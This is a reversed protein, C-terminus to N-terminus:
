KHPEVVLSTEFPSHKGYPEGFGNWKRFRSANNCRSYYLWTRKQWTTRERCRIEDRQRRVFPGRLYFRRTRIRDRQGIVVIYPSDAAYAIRFVTRKGNNNENMRKKTRRGRDPKHDDDSIYTPKTTGAAVVM